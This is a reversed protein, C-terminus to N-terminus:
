CLSPRSRVSAGRQYGFPAKNRADYARCRGGPEIQRNLALPQSFVMLSEWWHWSSVQLLNHIRRKTDANEFHVAPEAFVKKDLYIGSPEDGTMVLGHNHWFFREHWVYSSSRTLLILLVVSPDSQLLM